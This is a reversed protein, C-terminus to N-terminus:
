KQDAGDTIAPLRHIGFLVSCIIGPLLIYFICTSSPSFLADVRHALSCSPHTDMARIETPLTTTPLRPLLKLFALPSSSDTTSLRTGNPSLRALVLRARTSRVRVFFLSFLASSKDFFDFIRTLTPVVGPRLPSGGVFFSFSLLPPSRDFFQFSTHRVGRLTTHALSARAPSPSCSFGSTKTLFLFSVSGGGRTRFM